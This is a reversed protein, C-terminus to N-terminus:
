NANADVISDSITGAVGAKTESEPKLVL